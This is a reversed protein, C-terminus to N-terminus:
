KQDPYKLLDDQGPVDPAAFINTINDFIAACSIRSKDCGPYVCFLDGAKINHPLSLFLEIERTTANWSKVEMGVGANAGTEFRCTGGNFWADVARSDSIQCIFTRAGTSSLVRGTRTWANRATWVVGGDVVTTGVGGSFNPASAATTGGNTCEWYVNNLTHCMLDGSQNTDIVYGTLNDLFANAIPATDMTVIFEIRAYRSGIPIRRDQFGFETWSGGVSIAGTDFTAANTPTHQVNVAVPGDATVIANSGPANVTPDNGSQDNFTGDQFTYYRVLDPHTPDITRDYFLAIQYETRAVDWIRLEMMQGLFSGGSTGGIRDINFQGVYGTGLEEAVLEANEYIRLDDGSRTVAIHKWQGSVLQNPSVIRDVGQLSPSPNDFLRPFGSAFNIDNGTTGTTNGGEGCPGDANNITGEPKVWFEITFDGLLAFIPISIRDTNWDAQLGYDLVQGEDDMFQMRVRGRDNNDRRWGRMTMYTAGSDLASLSLGTGSPTLDVDQRLVGNGEGGRASYTGTYQNSNVPVLDNAGTNNWYLSTDFSGAAGAIEFDPDGIDLDFFKGRLTGSQQANVTQGVSYSTSRRVEAPRIPIGCAPEGLDYLCTPSFVDMYNYSLRQMIGRLEVQFTGNPLTQVEGFFGRRMKLQGRVSNLWPTIFIKIEANDFLGARLEDEPLALDSATGVIDLNDVSLTSTTEIATRKYAGISTYLFGDQLVDEDSDTFRFVKGDTRTIIWCTCLATVEQDLHSRLASTISKM